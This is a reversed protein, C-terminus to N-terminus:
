PHNPRTRLSAYLLQKGSPRRSGGKPEVTVFVSDVQELKEPDDFKLVWRRNSENDLYFIGMNLPLDQGASKRGWAQFAANRIGRQQDLDFAYFILSKEKTYFIRGFAKSMRGKNDVDFVDVIYLNRAGMLERIDRDSALYQQQEDVTRNARTEQARTETIERELSASRLQDQQHQARAASLEDQVDHLSSSTQELTLALKDREHHLANLESAETGEQSALTRYRSQSSRLLEKLKMVESTQQNAVASLRDITRAQLELKQNLVDRATVLHVLEGSTAAVIPPPTNRGSRLGWRFGAATSAAIAFIVMSYAFAPRLYFPSTFSALRGKEVTANPLKAFLKRKANSHSRSLEPSDVPRVSSGFLTAMGSTFVAGYQEMRNSCPVCEDLHHRLEQWEKRNLDGSTSLACLEAYYEHDSHKDQNM